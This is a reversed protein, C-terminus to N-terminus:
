GLHLGAFLKDDTEYVISFFSRVTDVKVPGKVNFHYLRIIENNLFGQSILITPTASILWVSIWSITRRTISWAIPWDVGIAAGGCAAGEGLTSDGCALERLTTAM